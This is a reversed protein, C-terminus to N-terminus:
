SSTFSFLVAEEGKEEILKKIKEIILNKRKVITRIEEDNLYSKLRSEIVKEDLKQLNNYLKKPCRKIECGPILELTPSFAESFDVRWVKWDSKQILIDDRDLCEDYVLNEFVKIEELANEFTKQDPPEINRRERYNETMTNEVLIQLSGNLGNIEREVVPPVFDLDLLKGLEYGALEYNYSDPLISPRRRNVHKFIARLRTKGDDLSIIWPATRGGVTSKEVTVIRATKLYNEMKNLELNEQATSPFKAYNLSGFLFGIFFLIEFSIKIKM